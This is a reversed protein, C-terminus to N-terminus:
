PLSIARPTPPRGHGFFFLQSNFPVLRRRRLIKKTIYTTYYLLHGRDSANVRGRVRDSAALVRVRVGHKPCTQPLGLGLGLGFM